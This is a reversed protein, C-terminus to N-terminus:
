LSCLANRQPRGGALILNGKYSKIVWEERGLSDYDPIAERALATPGVYIAPTAATKAIPCDAGTMKAIYAKLESAAMEEASSATEAVVIPVPNSKGITMVNQAQALQVFGAVLISCLLALRKM